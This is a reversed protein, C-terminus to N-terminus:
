PRRAVPWGDALSCPRRAARSKRCRRRETRRFACCATGLGRRRTTVFDSNLLYLAQVPVNTTERSGSVLSSEAFDSVELADPLVNRAIPLYVSRMRGAPNILSEENAGRRGRGGIAGDGTEAILSGLPPQLDLSNAAALMADRICEADLRRKSMRWVLLNEPDAAFNEPHHTSALQYARSLVM